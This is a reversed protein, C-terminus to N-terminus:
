AVHRWKKRHIISCATQPCIGFLEGIKRMTIGGSAYRERLAVVKDATMKAKHNREGSVKSPRKNRIIMGDSIPGGCKPWVKGQTILGILATSVNYQEALEHHSIDGVAYRKRIEVVQTSRLKAQGNREGSSDCKRGKQIMDRTNDHYTGAFLHDPNVCSPNDCRHCIIMGDPVGGNAMAYSLRHANYNKRGYRVVGYGSGYKFATWNWCDGSKDVKQWFLDYHKGTLVPVNHMYRVGSVSSGPSEAKTWSPTSETFDHDM